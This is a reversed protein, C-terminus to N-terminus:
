RPSGISAPPPLPGVFEPDSPQPVTPEPARPPGPGTFWDLRWNGHEMTMDFGTWALPEEDGFRDEVELRYTRAGVKRLYLGPTYEGMPMLSFLRALHERNAAIQDFAEGPDRGHAAYEDAARESLVQALFLARDGQDITNYIHVMLQRATRALLTVGGDANVIALRDDTLVTGGRPPETQRTLATGSKAEPINGLMPEYRIIREETACGALLVLLTAARLRM